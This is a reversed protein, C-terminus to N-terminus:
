LTQYIHLNELLLGGLLISNQGRFTAGDFSEASMGAGAIVLVQSAKKIMDYAKQYDNIHDYFIKRLYLSTPVVNANSSYHVINSNLHCSLVTLQGHQMKSNIGDYCKDCFVLESCSAKEHFMEFETLAKPVFIYSDIKSCAPCKGFNLFECKALTTKAKKRRPMEVSVVSM